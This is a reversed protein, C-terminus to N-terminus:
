DGLIKVPFTEGGGAQSNDPAFSLADKLDQETLDPSEALFLEVLRESPLSALGPTRRIFALFRRATERERRSAADRERLAARAQGAAAEAELAFWIVGSLGLVLCGALAGLLAAALRNRRCWGVAKEPWGVPRAHIPRRDRFRRLDDALAEASGYRRPPSKHLCTHCITELDRAIRPQLRRVPVPEDQLVQRLTELTTAAKFPPRGTLSEYLVAGLSYVDSAPGVERVRGAAQEPAMYSPTGMVMGSQTEGAEDLKRALGFDSLKVVGGASLLVNSPKLDRHIVGQSHAAHVARALAELVEVASEPPQPVGRLQDALSGGPCFELSAYLTGEHEGVDYIATIHPHQLRAVAEAETRFRRRADAGAYEPHRITKLAVVRDLAVHRAKYVVGM